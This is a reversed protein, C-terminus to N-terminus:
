AAEEQKARLAEATRVAKSLPAQFTAAAKSQAGILAGAMKSLLVERSELDALKKVGAEDLIAGDMYGGKVILEPNDKAFDRLAKAVDIADGHVFAIASPGTMKGAFAEIGSEEAAIETLTNKVVAYQANERVSRRLTQLKDVSLGRYETLVAATSSSFLEKLEEVAAAKEPNAM